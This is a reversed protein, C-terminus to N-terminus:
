KSLRFGLNIKIPLHSFDFEKNTKILYSHFLIFYNKWGILHAQYHKHFLTQNQLNTIQKLNNNGNRTRTVYNKM